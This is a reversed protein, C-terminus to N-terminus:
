GGTIASVSGNSVLRPDFGGVFSPEAPADNCSISLAALNDVVDNEKGLPLLDPLNPLM